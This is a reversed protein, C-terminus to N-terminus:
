LWHFHQKLYKAKRKYCQYFYVLPYNGGYQTGLAPKRGGTRM